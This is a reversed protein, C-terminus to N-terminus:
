LWFFPLFVFEVSFCDPTQLPAPSGPSALRDTKCQIFLFSFHVFFVWLPSRSRSFCKPALGQTEGFRGFSAFFWPSASFFFVLTAFMLLAFFSPHPSECSIKLFFSFFTPHIASFFFICAFPLSGFPRCQQEGKAPRFAFRSFVIFFFFFFLVQAHEPGLFCCRGRVLRDFTWSVTAPLWPCTRRALSAWTGSWSYRAILWQVPPPTGLLRASSGVLM